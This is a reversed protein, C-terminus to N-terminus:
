KSREPSGAPLNESGILMLLGGLWQAVTIWLYVQHRRYFVDGDAQVSQGELDLMGTLSSHVWFAFPLSLVVVGWGLRTRWGTQRLGPVLLAVAVIALFNLWTTVQQTVFGQTTTDTVRSGIPVVFGAYFTLGGWWLSLAIRRIPGLKQLWTQQMNNM